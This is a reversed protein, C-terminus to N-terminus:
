ISLDTGNNADNRPKQTNNNKFEQLFLPNVEFSTLELERDLTVNRERIAHLLEMLEKQLELQKEFIYVISEAFDITDQELATRQAM